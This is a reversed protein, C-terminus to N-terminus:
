FISIKTEKNSINTLKLSLISYYNDVDVLIEKKAIERRYPELFLNPMGLYEAATFIIKNKIRALEYFDSIKTKYESDRLIHHDLIIVKTNIKEILLKMNRMGINFEERSLKSGVLYTPYGDIILFDPNQNMVWRLAQEDALGQADSAHIFSFNTEDAIKIMIVRGVKSGEAGHWVPPSFTLNEFSTNDAWHVEEALERVIKEFIRGRRAGSPHINNYPDKAFVIKGTFVNEYLETDKPRPFHDYHYHSIFIIDCKKSLNIINKRCYEMARIEIETPRIGFRRPALAVSPDIFIRHEDTEVITAMSRVGYSDFAIPIIKM